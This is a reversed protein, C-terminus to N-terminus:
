WEPSVPSRAVTTSTRRSRWGPRGTAADTKFDGGATYNDAQSWSGDYRISAATTAFTASANGDAVQVVGVGLAIEEGGVLGIRAEVTPVFGRGLHDIQGRCGSGISEVVHDCSRPAIEVAVAM